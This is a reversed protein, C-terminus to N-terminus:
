EYNAWGGGTSSAGLYTLYQTWRGEVALEEGTTISGPLAAYTRLVSFGVTSGPTPHFSGVFDPIDSQWALAYEGPQLLLSSPTGSSIPVAVQSDAVTLPVEGSDWLLTRTSGSSYIGLRVNGGSLHSHFRMEVPATHQVVTVLSANLMEHTPRLDIETVTTPTTRFAYARQTVVPEVIFSDDLFGGSPLTTRPGVQPEGSPAALSVRSVGRGTGSTFPITFAVLALMEDAGALPTACLMSDGSTTEGLVVPPQGEGAPDFNVFGRLANSSNNDYGGLHLVGTASSLAANRPTFRKTTAPICAVLSPLAGGTGLKLKALFSVDPTAGNLGIYLHRTVPDIVAAPGYFRHPGSNLPGVPGLSTVGIRTPPAAGAGLDIQVVNAPTLQTFLGAGADDVGVYAYVGDPDRIIWSASFGDASADSEGVVTPATDGVGLSIKLVRVNPAGLGGGLAFWAYGAASDIICARPISSASLTGVVTPLESGDGLKVKHIANGGSAAYSGVYAYEGTADVCASTIYQMTALYAEGVIRTQYLPHEPAGIGTYGINGQAFVAAPTALCLCAVPGFGIRAIRKM